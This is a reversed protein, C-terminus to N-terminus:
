EATEDNDFVFGDRTAQFPEWSLKIWRCQKFCEHMYYYVETIDPDDWVPQSDWYGEVFEVYGEWFPHNDEDENERNLGGIIELAQDKARCFLRHPLERAYPEFIWDIEFSTIYWIVEQFTHQHLGEDKKICTNIGATVTFNM